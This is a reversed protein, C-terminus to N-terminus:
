GIGLLPLHQLIMSASAAPAISASIGAIGVSAGNTWHVTNSGTSVTGNSDGIRANNASSNRSTIGSGATPTVGVAHGFSVIWCGSAVVTVSVSLDTTVSSAKGSADPQGSQLAGSYSVSESRINITQNASVIVNNAGTTPNVLDHLYCRYNLSTDANVQVGIQTMSVANYTIGTVHNSNDGAEDGTGVLIIMNSGTVTHSYTVSTGNVNGFSSADFAIALGFLPFFKSSTEFHIILGLIGFTIIAPRYDISSDLKFTILSKIAQGLLRFYSRITVEIHALLSELTYFHYQVIIKGNIIKVGSSVEKRIGYGRGFLWEYARFINSIWVKNSWHIKGNLEENEPHYRPHRTIFEAIRLLFRRIHQLTM